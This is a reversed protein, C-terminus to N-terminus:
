SDIVFLLIIINLLRLLSVGYPEVDFVEFALLTSVRREFPLNEWAQRSNILSSFIAGALSEM